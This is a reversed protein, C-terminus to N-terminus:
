GGQQNRQFSPGPPDVVRECSRKGPIFGGSSQLGPVSFGRSCPRNRLFVHSPLDSGGGAEM